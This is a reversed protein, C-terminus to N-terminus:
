KLQIRPSIYLQLAIGMCQMQMSSNSVLKFHFKFKISESERQAHSPSCRWISCNINATDVNLFTVSYVHPWDTICMCWITIRYELIREEKPKLVGPLKVVSAGFEAWPCNYGCDKHIYHFQAILLSDDMCTHMCVCKWDGILITICM